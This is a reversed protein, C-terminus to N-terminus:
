GSGQLLMPDCGKMRRFGLKEYFPRTGEAAILGIWGAGDAKLRRVLRRVIQAGIGRGRLAEDVFVDQIYADNAGDGLARGMGVARGGEFVVLFRRSGRVIRRLLAPTDKPRWWGAARYMEELRLVLARDPRRIFAYRLRTM